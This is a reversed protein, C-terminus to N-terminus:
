LNRSVMRITLVGTDHGIEYQGFYGKRHLALAAARIRAGFRTPDSKKDVWFTRSNAAEITAVGRRNYGQASLRVSIAEGAELQNRQDEIAREIRELFESRSPFKLETVKM